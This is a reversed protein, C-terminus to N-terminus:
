ALGCIRRLMDNDEIYDKNSESQFIKDNRKQMTDLVKQKMEGSLKAYIKTTELQAHGLWESIMPLSIGEEYLHMARTRRFLHPHLHPLSPDQEKARKECYNLIRQVNDASMKNMKGDRLVYFLFSDDNKEQHYKNFYEKAQQWLLNSLPTIRHKKGKGFFHVNARGRSAPVLDRVRLSLIEDIRGGSEYLLSLFFRDRVSNRTNSVSDLVLKVQETTLWVFNPSRTDPVPEIEQILQLEVASLVDKKMFFKCFNKLDSLRHNITPASNNRTLQLWQIFLLINKQTFDSARVTKLQIGYAEDLFALFLNISYRYSTITDDDRRRVTPLYELLFERIASLLAPDAANRKM